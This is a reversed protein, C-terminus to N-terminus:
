QNFSNKRLFVLGIGVVSLIVPILWSATVQTGALILSTKDLSIIDGGISGGIM